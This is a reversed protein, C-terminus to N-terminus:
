IQRNLLVIITSKSNSEISNFDGIFELNPKKGKEIHGDSLKVFSKWMKEHLAIIAVQKQSLFIKEKQSLIEFYNIPHELKDLLDAIQDLKNENLLGNEFLKEMVNSLITVKYNKMDIDTSYPM